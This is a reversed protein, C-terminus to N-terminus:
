HALTALMTRAEAVTKALPQEAGITWAQTFAPEGLAAAIPERDRALMARERDNMLRPMAARLASAAGLLRAACAAQQGIGMLAAALELADVVVWTSGSEWFAGLSKAIDASQDLAHATEGRQLLLRAHELHMWAINLTSNAAKAHQMAALCAEMAAEPRGLQEYISVLHGLYHVHYYSPLDHAVVIARIREFYTLAVLGNGSDREALGRTALCLAMGWLDGLSEFRALAADFQVRARDLDGRAGALDAQCMELHAMTQGDGLQAALVWAAEVLPEAQAHEGVMTALWAAQQLVRARELRNVGAGTTIARDLLDRGV